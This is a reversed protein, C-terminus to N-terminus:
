PQFESSKLKSVAQRAQSTILEVAAMAGMGSDGCALRKVQPPIVEVGLGQIVELHQATFPSDWMQTNMAPAVLLPLKFDWARVVCTLLNDCLGAAMKALSNASLPAIIMLDAWRRLEIHLVDDGVKQWQRWEDENGMVEIDDPLDAECTLFPRAADSTILRVDAFQGLAKVLHPVKVAAVSGTAGMLIRPRRKQVLEVPGAM